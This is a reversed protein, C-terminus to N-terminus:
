LINLQKCKHEVKGIPEFFNHIFLSIYNKHTTLICDSKDIAFYHLAGM